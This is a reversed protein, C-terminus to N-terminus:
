LKKGRKSDKSNSGGDSSKKEDCKSDGKAESYAAGAGLGVGAAQVIGHVIPVGYGAMGYSQLTAFTSHAVINGIGAAIGNAGFGAIAAAPAIVLAPAAIMIGATGMAAAAGPNEKAYQITSNAAKNEVDHLRRPHNCVIHM